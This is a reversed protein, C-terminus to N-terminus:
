YHRNRGARNYISMTATAHKNAKALLKKKASPTKAKAARAIAADMQNSHRKARAM